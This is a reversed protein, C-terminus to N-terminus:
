DREKDFDMPRDPQRDNDTEDVRQAPRLDAVAPCLFYPFHM